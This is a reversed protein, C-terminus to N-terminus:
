SHNLHSEKKLDKPRRERFDFYDTFIYTLETLEKSEPNLLYCLRLKSEFSNREKLYEVAKMELDELDINNLSIM